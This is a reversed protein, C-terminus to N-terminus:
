HRAISSPSNFPAHFEFLFQKSARRPSFLKEKPESFIRDAPDIQIAVLDSPVIDIDVHVFLELAALPCLVPHTSSPRGSTIGPDVMRALARAIM